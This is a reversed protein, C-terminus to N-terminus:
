HEVKANKKQMYFYIPVGILTIVIGIATTTFQQILTSILIFAGGVLAILPIVPYLPVKYPRKLDPRTKRMKMVGIFVMCYFFWIVFILMNTIADFQGSLMMLCAIIYQVLGSAWPVGAKNLKAFFNSFPLTKEQGMVYPVRMGTMTYGNMGGYVSVLIGITVIKGGVGGFIKDAVDMSVNLNGAVQNVPVVYYFVANVLLYVTIVILLGVAIAKPLDKQPNKMEGALTGVHIWGDYAFMTALLATGLAAWLARRPGAEIPFLRFDVGGPHLFGLIVIAALPLLKIVLTVSSVWGGCKASIFNLLAVSLATIMGVPVIWSDALHFLGAFQTGFAIAIAAVNAPMYVIGYAWGTLFGWFKGFPEEIYKVIGGTEPFAAAVEAATLGACMNIIGGLFWAFLALSISMTATTVASAKFFVGTGIITGAVTSLTAGFGLSKKMHEDNNKAM